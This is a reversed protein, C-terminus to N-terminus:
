QLNEGYLARDLNSSDTKVGTKVPKVKFLPDDELPTHMSIWQWIAERLGQKITLGRKEVVRKFAKYEKEELETQVVKKAVM